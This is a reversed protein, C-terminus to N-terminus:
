YALVFKSMFMKLEMMNKRKELFFSVLYGIVGGTVLSVLTQLIEKM